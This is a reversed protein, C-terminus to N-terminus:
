RRYIRVNGDTAGFQIAVVNGTYTGGSPPPTPTTNGHTPVLGIEAAHKLSYTSNINAEGRPSFRVTKYFTYSQASFPFQTQDGNVQKGSPNDSSIRNFHDFPSGDTYPVAPRGYLSDPSPAPSPTPSPPPGIDTVHVGEIRTLKGIQKIRDAPLSAAPDNDNFIKTGDISCVSTMVLRGKGPYPPPSNTPGASTTDEEYFGVWVYTNNAMAYTRARELVGKITYATNTVDGASKLNTFAPVILVMLIAIVAMVVLLELLTFAFRGRSKPWSTFAEPERQKLTFVDRGRLKPWTFAFRERPQPVTFASRAGRELTLVPRPKQATGFARIHPAPPM